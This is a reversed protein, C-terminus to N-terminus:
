LKSYMELYKGSLAKPNWYTEMWTRSQTGLQAWSKDRIMRRIDDRFSDKDAYLWPLKDMCGTVSRVAQETEADLRCICPIGMALYELSSLHYSGTAIEDVGIDADRKLQMAIHHPTKIILHYKIEGSHRMRKLIAGVTSYSKDNWGRANTNSPAYSILPRENLPRDPRPSYIPDTIDVVNPLIFQAEPWERPHYQALTALPLGSSVEAAFDERDYRPSHMQIVSPKKPPPTGLVEFVRQRQWRNHFHLLDSWEYIWYRLEEKRMRPGVLDTKFVRDLIVDEWVLHRSSVGAVHRNLLDSIRIPSGSLTTQSLHLINM